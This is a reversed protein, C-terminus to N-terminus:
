ELRFKIEEIEKDWPCIEEYERLLEKATDKEGNRIFIDIQEKLKEGLWELEAKDLYEEKELLKRLYEEKETYPFKWCKIQEKLMGPCYKHLRVFYEKLEQRDIYELLLRISWGNEVSLHILNWIEEKRNPKGAIIHAIAQDILQKDESKIIYEWIKLQDKRDCLELELQQLHEIAKEINKGQIWACLMCRHYEATQYRSEMPNMSTSAFQKYLKPNKQYDEILREMVKGIDLIEQFPKGARDSMRIYLYYVLIAELANFHMGEIINKAYDFFEDSEMINFQMLLELLHIKYIAETEPEEYIERMISIGRFFYSVATRHMQLIAYENAMQYNYRMDMPYEDFDYRLINLNRQSKKMARIRDNMYAFGTHRAAAEFFYEKKGREVLLADHIRGEFHLEPTIKAMRLTRHDSYELKGEELLNRQIYSASDYEKYTDNLFFDIIESVDEFWEDDDISMYWLGEAKHIAINRVLSMNDCWPHQYVRAGYQKTIEVTGDTSGTDIVILESPIEKLIPEIGKMCREIVTIQNSVPVGITLLKSRGEYKGGQPIVNKQYIYNGTSDATAIYSLGSQEEITVIANDLWPAKILIQNEKLYIIEQYGPCLIDPKQILIKETETGQDIQRIQYISSFIGAKETFCIFDTEKDKWLPQYPFSLKYTKYLLTCIARKKM